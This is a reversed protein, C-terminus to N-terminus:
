QKPMTVVHQPKQNHTDQSHVRAPRPLQHVRVMPVAPHLRVILAALNVRVTQAALHPRTLAPPTSSSQEQPVREVREHSPHQAGKHSM